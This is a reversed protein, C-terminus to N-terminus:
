PTGGASDNSVDFEGGDTLYILPVTLRRTSGDSRRSLVTETQGIGMRAGLSRAETILGVIEVPRTLDDPLHAFVEGLTRAENDRVESRMWELVVRTQPGGLSKLEDVNLRAGGVGPDATPMAPAAYQDAEPWRNPLRGLELVGENLVHVDISDRPQAQEMWGQLSAMAEKLVRVVERDAVPDSARLYRSFTGTVRRHEGRVTEIGAALEQPLRSLRMRETPTLAETAPHSLTIDINDALTAVRDESRLIEAASSYARGEATASLADHSALFERAVEGQAADAGRLRSAVSQHNGRIAEAVKTFQEPLTSTMDLLHSVQDIIEDRTIEILEGGAELRELENTLETIQHALSAMRADKSGTTRAALDAITETIATVRSEGLLPRVNTENDVFQLVSQAASTLSLIREGEEGDDSRLLRQQLWDAILARGDKNPREDAPTDELADDLRVVAHNYDVKLGSGDFMFRLAAVQFDSTRSGLLKLVPKDYATRVREREVRISPSSSM